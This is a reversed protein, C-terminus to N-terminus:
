FDITLYVAKIIKVFDLFNKNKNGFLKKASM